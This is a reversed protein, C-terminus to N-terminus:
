ADFPKLSVEGGPEMVIQDVKLKAAQLKAQCHQKLTTGREYAHIAEELPLKGEELRRVLAELEQMAQEFTLQDIEKKM